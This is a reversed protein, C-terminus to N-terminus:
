KGSDLLKAFNIFFYSFVAQTELRYRRPTNFENRNTQAGVSYIISMEIKNALSKIVKIINKQFM